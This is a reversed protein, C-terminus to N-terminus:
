RWDNRCGDDSDADYRRVRAHWWVKVYAARDQKRAPQRTKTFGRTSEGWCPPIDWGHHGCRCRSRRVLVSVFYFILCVKGAFFCQLFVMYIYFLAVQSDSLLNTISPIFKSVTLSSSGHANLTNQLLLLIEERVKVFLFILIVLM